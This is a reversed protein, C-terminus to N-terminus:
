EPSWRRRWGQADNVHDSVQKKVSFTYPSVYWHFDSLASSTSKLKKATESQKEQEVIAACSSIHSGETSLVFCRSCWASVRHGGVQDSFSAQWLDYQKLVIDDVRPNAEYEGFKKRKCMDNARQTCGNQRLLLPFTYQRRWKLCVCIYRTKKSM